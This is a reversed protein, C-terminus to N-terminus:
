AEASMRKKTVLLILAASVLIGGVTYFLTTGMGGTSPLTNGKNNTVGVNAAGLEVNGIGAKGDVTCSISTLQSGTYGPTIVVTVDHDVLNYGDPAKTERLHYTGADLGKFNILGYADSTLVTAAAQGEARTTWGTIKGDAAVKAFSEYEGETDRLHKFLVFKAGSLMKTTDVGDTKYVNLQFAYVVPKSPPTEGRGDSSPSNSFILKGENPNGNGGIIADSDVEAIFIWHIEDSASTTVNKLNDFTLTLTTTGDTNVTDKIVFAEPSIDTESNDQHHVVVSHTSVYKLGASMTDVFQFFYTEYESYNDPLTGELEFYVTEGIGADANTGFAQTLDETVTKTLVPVTGKHKVTQDRAVHIMFKTYSDHQNELSADKDKILYYGEGLGTIEYNNTGSILTSEVCTTSLNTGIIEAFRDLKVSDNTYTAVVTAVDNADTCGAFDPIKIGEKTTTLIDDTKLANMMAALKGETQDIGTGWKVNSLTAKDDSLDGSFIQYAQYTHNQNNGEITIKHTEAAMTPVAMAVIIILALLMAFFKKM